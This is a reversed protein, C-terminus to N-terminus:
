QLRWENFDDFVPLESMGLHDLEKNLHAGLVELDSSRVSSALPRTPEDSCFWNLV